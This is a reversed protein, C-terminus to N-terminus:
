QGKSMRMRSCTEVTKQVNPDVAAEFDRYKNNWRSGHVERGCTDGSNATESNVPSKDFTM